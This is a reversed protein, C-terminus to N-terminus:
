VGRDVVNLLCLLLRFVVRVGVVDKPPAEHTKVVCLFSQFVELLRSELARTFSDVPGGQGDEVVVISIVCISKLINDLRRRQVGLHTFDPVVKADKVLFALLRLFGQDCIGFYQLEISLLGVRLLSDKRYFSGEVLLILLLM